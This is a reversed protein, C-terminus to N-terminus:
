RSVVFCSTDRRKLEVCLSDADDARAFPGVQVRYFVGNSTEAREFFPQLGGVLAGIDNQFLDCARSADGEERVAALLVRFRGGPAAVPAPTAQPEVRAVQLEQATQRTPSAAPRSPSPPNVTQRSASTATVPGNRVESVLAKLAAEANELDPPAPPLDSPSSLPQASPLTAASPADAVVAPQSDPPGDLQAIAVESPTLPQEPTPLLREEEAVPGDGLLDGIGGLDAVTSGGPNDPAVKLPTAAARILPAEGAPGNEGADGYALWVVASFAVFVVLAPLGLL